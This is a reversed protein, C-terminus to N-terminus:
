SFPHELAIPVVAHVITGKGLESEAWAEGGHLRAIQRVIPLGLGSGEIRRAPGTRVRHFREFVKELEYAPIGIGEDIVRLHAQDDTQDLEVRVVGGEPSYKIANGILNTALQDLRDPDASVLPLPAAMFQIDRDPHARRMREVVKTLLAALDVPRRDLAFESHMREYWLLDDVLRALLSGEQHIVDALEALESDPSALERLLESYGLISTLPTRFEHGVIGVLDSREQDIRTLERNADEQAALAEVTAIQAAKLLSHDHLTLVIGGLDPTNLENAITAEFWGWSGDARRLRVEGSRTAGPEAAVARLAAEADKRHDPHVRALMIQGAASDAGIGLVRDLAPSAFLLVGDPDIVCIVDNSHNVLARSREQQSRNEIQVVVARIEGDVRPAAGLVLSLRVPLGDRRLCRQEIQCRETEGTQLRTLAARGAARDDPHTIDDLRCGCLAGPDYGLMAAFVPNVDELAGDDADAVALGI